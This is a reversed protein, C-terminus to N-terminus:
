DLLKGFANKKLLSRIRNYPRAFYFGPRPVLFVSKGVAVPIAVMFSTIGVIKGTVDFVAGGSYGSWVDCTMRFVYLSNNEDYIETTYEGSNISISQRKVSNGVGISIGPYGAVVLHQGVYASTAVSSNVHLNVLVKLLAMDDGKSIAAVTSVIPSELQKDSSLYIESVCYFGDDAVVHRATLIYSEKNFSRLIVGSGSATYAGGSSLLGEIGTSLCRSVIRVTRKATVAKVARDREYEIVNGNNIGFPICSLFVLCIFTTLLFLGARAM